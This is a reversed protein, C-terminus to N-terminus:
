SGWGFLNKRFLSNYQRVQMRTYEEYTPQDLTKLTTERLHHVQSGYVLIHRLHHKKIQEEYVNEACWFRVSEDLGGINNWTARKLVIAWGLLEKGSRSGWKIGRTAKYLHPDSPSASDAGTVEFAKLMADLWPPSFILDNNFFGIYPASGIRAAENMYRNYNFEGLQRLTTVGVYEKKQKEVVIINVRTDYLSDLCDVTVGLLDASKADSIIVADLIM